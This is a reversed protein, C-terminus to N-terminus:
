IRILLIMEKQDMSSARNLQKLRMPTTRQLMRSKLSFPGQTQHRLTLKAIGVKRIRLKLRRQDKPLCKLSGRTSSGCSAKHCSSKMTRILHNGRSTYAAKSSHHKLWLYWKRRLKYRNWTAKPLRHKLSAILCSKRKMQSVTIGTKNVAIKKWRM